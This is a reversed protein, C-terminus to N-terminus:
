KHVIAPALEITIPFMSRQAAVAKGKAAEQLREYIVREHAAQQHILLFGKASPIVIYTNLLQTHELNDHSTLRSEHTTLLDDGQKFVGHEIAGGFEQSRVGLESGGVRSEPGEFFEKWHKLESRKDPEFLFM